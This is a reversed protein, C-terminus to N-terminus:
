TDGELRATAGDFVVAIGKGGDARLGLRLASGGDPLLDPGVTFSGEAGDTGAGALRLNRPLVHEAALQPVDFAVWQGEHFRAVRYRDEAWVVAMPEGTLLAEDAARTLRAALLRAERDAVDGKGANGLSLGIAGAMVGILVLVVLIEVLTVGADHPRPVAGFRQPSPNTM